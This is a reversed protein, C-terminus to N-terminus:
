SEALAAGIDMVIEPTLMGQALMVGDADVLAEKIKKAWLHEVIM